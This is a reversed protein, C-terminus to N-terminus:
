SCCAAGGAAGFLLVQNQLPLPRLRARVLVDRTDRLYSALFVIIALKAFEAPQFQIPGIDVALYAGNM